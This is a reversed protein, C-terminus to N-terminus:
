GVEVEVELRVLSLLAQRLEFGEEGAGEERGRRSWGGRVRIRRLFRRGFAFLGRVGARGRRGGGLLAELCFLGDTLGLERERECAKRAVQQVSDRHAANRRKLECFAGCFTTSRSASVGGGKTTSRLIRHAEDGRCTACDTSSVQRRHPFLSISSSSESATSARRLSM